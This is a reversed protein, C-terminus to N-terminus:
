RLREAELDVERVGTIRAPVLDGPAADGKLFVVGDIEPAQSSLRGRVGGPGAEDVLVRAESGVLGELTERMIGHQLDTLRRYRERAVARPVKEEFAYAATGEEDSYRFVGLRDFRADRVFDLLEEFDEETEGPFGVIFTTRLTLDPIGERLREVLTRQREGTTGRKMARLMRDSAHQFPVDVYPLVRRSGALVEILEDSLASPYLYLQRIWDLGEVEDLARLLAALGPRGPLDKGFATADQAVLNIERAGSEALQRAEAVVSEPTRSQFRGRIGPIACFACVRDCGESIKVYATHTPGILIRPSHEDYLHTHGAEVYVGRSRGELADHLVAGVEPFTGTGLFADVEPLEKALEAGYRQPLCGAVLLARLAGSERRDAMDLIAQISEERASEIFSCTNVVVADADELREAIAYGELALSGLMVETDLRNKPCGLSHFYVSVKPSPASVARLTGM